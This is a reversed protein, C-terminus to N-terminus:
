RNMPYTVSQYCIAPLYKVDSSITNNIAKYFYFALFCQMGVEPDIGRVALSSYDDAKV